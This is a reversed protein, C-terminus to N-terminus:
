VTRKNFAQQETLVPERRDLILAIAGIICIGSLICLGLLLGHPPDNYVVQNGNEVTTVREITSRYIAYALTFLSVILLTPILIRKYM